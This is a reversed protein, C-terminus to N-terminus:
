SASDVGGDAVGWGALAGSVDDSVRQGRPSAMAADDERLHGLLALEAVALHVAVHVEAAPDARVHLQRVGFRRRRRAARAAGVAPRQPELLEAVAQAVALGAVATTARVCLNFRRFAGARIRMAHGRVAVDQGPKRLRLWMVSVRTEGRWILDVPAVDTTVAVPHHHLVPMDASAGSALCHPEVVPCRIPVEDRAGAHEVGSVFQVVLLFATGTGARPQGPVAVAPWCASSALIFACACPPESPPARERAPRKRAVRACRCGAAALGRRAPRVELSAMPTSYRGPVSRWGTTSPEPWRSGAAPLAPSTRCVPMTM